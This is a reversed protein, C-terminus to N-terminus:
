FSFTQRAAEDKENLLQQNKVSLTKRRQMERRDRLNVAVVVAILAAALVLAVILM